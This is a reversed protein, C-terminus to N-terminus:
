SRVAKKGAPAAIGLPGDLGLRRSSRLLPESVGSWQLSRGSKAQAQAFAVLLQLGATDVHEVQSGDILVKETGCDAALLLFQMDTSDRLTCGAELTLNPRAITKKKVIDESARSAL